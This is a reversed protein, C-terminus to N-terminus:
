AAGETLRRYRQIVANHNVGFARGLERYSYDQALWATIAHREARDLEARIRNFTEAAVAPDADGARRAYARIQRAISAAYDPAEIVRETPDPKRM